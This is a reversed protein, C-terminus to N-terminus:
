LMPMGYGYKWGDPDDCSDPKPTTGYCSADKRVSERQQGQSTAQSTYHSYSPKTNQERQTRSQPCPSPSHSLSLLCPPQDCEPGFCLSLWTRGRGGGCGGVMRVWLCGICHM